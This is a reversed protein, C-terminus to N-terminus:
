PSHGRSRPSAKSGSGPFLGSDRLSRVTKPVLLAGIIGFVLAPLTQLATLQFAADPEMGILRSVIYHGPARGLAVIVGGLIVPLYATSLTPIITAALDVGIGPVLFNLAGVPGARGFGLLATGIGTLMGLVTATLPRPICGRCLLMFFALFLANHGAIGMHFHLLVEILVILLACFGIFIAEQLSFGLWWNDIRTTTTAARM